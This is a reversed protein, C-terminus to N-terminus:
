SKKKKLEKLEAEADSIEQELRRQKSSKEFCRLTVLKVEKQGYKKILKKLQCTISNVARKPIDKYTRVM